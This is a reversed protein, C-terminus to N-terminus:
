CWRIIWRYDGCGRWFWWQPQQFKRPTQFESHGEASSIVERGFRIGGFAPSTYFWNVKLTLPSLAVSWTSVNGPTGNVVCHAATGAVKPTLIFGGCYILGSVTMLAVQFNFDGGVHNVHGGVIPQQHPHIMPFIRNQVEVASNSLFWWVSNFM